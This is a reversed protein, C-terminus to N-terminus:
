YIFMADGFSFFRYERAVAEKYAQMTHDRGALASVLMVLTSKPLHFNTLLADVLKFTYGPFIFIDTWGSCAKVTLQGNVEMCHSSVTELTRASTTGVAVIRGGRDRTKNILAATEENLEYYEAHMTHDEVKDVSMPRFTGLGVHLTIYGINVGQAKLKELFGTTFHLGATPAAASGEQRAYVTQYRERDDLREKIYPPLPMEGLRDLLEQFIGEYQFQVERAGMEGAGTVVARLLPKGHGDDGFVLESGIKLKKAPKALTEWRDGELQKLLLIEAKAGTDAKMGLLRAPLVRTDNLIITDGPRLMQALETFRHHGLAGTAKDLTLLRSATREALPTQAILAEPLYFDFEEVNM